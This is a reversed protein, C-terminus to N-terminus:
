WCGRSVGARSLIARSYWGHTRPMSTLLLYYTTLLSYYTTPLLCYTTLLIHYTTLLLYYTTLILYDTSLRTDKAHIRKVPADCRPVDLPARRLVRLSRDLLLVMTDGGGAQLAPNACWVAPNDPANRGIRVFAAQPLGAAAAARRLQESLPAAAPNWGWGDLQWVSCGERGLMGM